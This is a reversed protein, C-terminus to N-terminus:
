GGPQGPLPEVAHGKFTWTRNIFFTVAVVPLTLIGQGLIKEVHLHNVLVFLLLENVAIACGWVLAFRGGSHGHSLHGADFTWHRNLLYSNLGGAFYGIPLAILYPVGVLKVEIAYIILTLATNGAGVVGYKVFQRIVADDFRRLPSDAHTVCV